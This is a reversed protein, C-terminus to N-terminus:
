VIGLRTGGEGGWKEKWTYIFGVWGEAFFCGTMKGEVFGFPKCVCAAAAEGEEERWGWRVGISDAAREDM